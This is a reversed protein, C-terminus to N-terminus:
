LLKEMRKWFETSGKTMGNFALMITIIGNLNKGKLFTEHTMVIHGEVRKVFKSQNEQNDLQHLNMLGFGIDM